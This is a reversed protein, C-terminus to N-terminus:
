IKLGDMMCGVADTNELGRLLDRARLFKVGGVWIISWFTQRMHRGFNRVEGKNDAAEGFNGRGGRTGFGGKRRFGM